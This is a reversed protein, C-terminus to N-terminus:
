RRSNKLADLWAQADEKSAFYLGADFRNRYEESIAKMGTNSNYISEFVTFDTDIVWMDDQPEKLPCPLTLTVTPRPKEWMGVIDDCSTDDILAKGTKGWHMFEKHIGNFGYGILHYNSLEEPADVIAIVYAKNGDRTKVPEGAIANELDFPKM